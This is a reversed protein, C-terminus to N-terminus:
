LGESEKRLAVARLWPEIPGLQVARMTGVHELLAALLLLRQEEDLCLQGRILDLRGPLDDHRWMEDAGWQRGSLRIDNTMPM